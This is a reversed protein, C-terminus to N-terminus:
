NVGPVTVPRELKLVYYIQTLLKRATAVIAKSHGKKLKL